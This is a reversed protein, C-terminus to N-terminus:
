ATDEHVCALIGEGIEPKDSTIRRDIRDPGAVRNPLFKTLHTAM